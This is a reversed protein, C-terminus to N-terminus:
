INQRGWIRPRSIGSEDPIEGLLAFAQMALGSAFEIFDLGQGKAEAPESKKAAPKEDGSLVTKKEKEVTSKWSEDVKKKITFGPTEQRTEEDM